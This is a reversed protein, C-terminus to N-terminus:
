VEVVMGLEIVRGPPLGFFDTPLSSRQAMSVFVWDLFGDVLGKARIVFTTRSLIFTTQDPDISLGQITADRLVKRVDQEDMFGFHGIVRYFGGGLNEITTREEPPVHPDETTQLTLFINREHLAKNHKINHLFAVPAWRTEGTLFIATGTVRVLNRHNIEDVLKEAPITNASLLAAVRKRGRRWSSFMLFIAAAILLPFWGGQAVKVINAGFFALDVVLFGFTVPLAFLLPWRWIRRAVVFALVTTIVMTTSVAVGYAAALNSSTHFGIVLAVTALMLAWNAIPVYIQGRLEAWTHVIKLRPLYGLQVAQWILSFVGSIVAQSAIITAMTALVLLPYLAWQPALRYFPNHAAAPDVLLLAGQGFYNLLLCPAVVSFWDIQIPKEGFHGLDAYLAEGGTAVLFVAGLVLYGTV